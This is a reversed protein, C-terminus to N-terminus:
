WITGRRLGRRGIRRRPNAVLGRRGVEREGASADEIREFALRTFAPRCPDQFHDVKDAADKEAAFAPITVLFVALCTALITRGM